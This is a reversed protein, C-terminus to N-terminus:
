KESNLFYWQEFMNLKQFCPCDEFNFKQMINNAMKCLVINDGQEGGVALIHGGRVLVGDKIWRIYRGQQLQEIDEVVIYETAMQDILSALRTQDHLYDQFLVIMDRTNEDPTKYLVPNEDKNQTVQNQNVQNQNVQNQNVQNQNVHNVNQKSM